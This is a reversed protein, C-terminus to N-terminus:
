DQNNANDKSPREYRVNAECLYDIFSLEIPQLPPQNSWKTAATDFRHGAQWVIRVYIIESSDRPSQPLRSVAPCGPLRYEVM